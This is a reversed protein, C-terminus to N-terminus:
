DLLTRASEEPEFAWVHGNAGIKKAALCTYYGVFAGVDLFNEGEKIEENLFHSLREEYTGSAYSRSGKHGGPTMIQFGFKINVLRKDPSSILRHGMSRLVDRTRSNLIGYEQLRNAVRVSTGWFFDKM